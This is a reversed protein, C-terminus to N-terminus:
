RLSTGRRLLLFALVVVAALAVAQETPDLTGVSSRVRGVLERLQMGVYETLAQALVLEFRYM